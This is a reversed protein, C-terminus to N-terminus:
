TQRPGAVAGASSSVTPELTSTITVIRTSTLASLAGNQQASVSISIDVVVNITIVITSSGVHQTTQYSRITNSGLTLPGTAFPRTLGGPANETAASALASGVPSGQSLQGQNPISIIDSSCPVCQSLLNQSEAMRYLTLADIGYVSIIPLSMLSLYIAFPTLPKM